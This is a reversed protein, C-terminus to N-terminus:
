TVKMGPAAGEDAALLFVGTGEGSAALVMGESVGFRMKRPKLNAVLIVHRGVLAAPEYSSRIGSFVTRQQTGVDLTLKLLKDAGEVHEAAVVRAVRLDIRQFTEIDIESVEKEEEQQGRVAQGSVAANAAVAAATAEMVAQVAAHEVRQLLPAFPAITTGLLPSGADQWQLPAGGLLREARETVAPLVPKLYVM